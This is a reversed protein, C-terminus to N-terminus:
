KNIAEYNKWVEYGKEDDYQTYVVSNDEKDVYVILGQIFAFAANSDDSVGELNGGFTSIKGSKELDKPAKKKSIEKDFYYAVDDIVIYPLIEGKDSLVVKYTSNEGAFFNQGKTDLMEATGNEYYHELTAGKELYEDIPYKNKVDEEKVIKGGCSVLTFISVGLMMSILVRRM